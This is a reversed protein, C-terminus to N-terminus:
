AWAPSQREGKLMDRYVDGLRAAIVDWSYKSMVLERGREGM